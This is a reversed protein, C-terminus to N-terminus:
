CEIGRAKIAEDLLLRAAEGIGLAQEEAITMIVTRQKDTIKTTLSQHFKAQKM